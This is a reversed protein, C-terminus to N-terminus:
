LDLLYSLYVFAKSGIKRALVGNQIETLNIDYKIPDPLVNCIIEIAKQYGVLFMGSKGEAYDIKIIQPCSKGGGFETKASIERLASLGFRPNQPNFESILTTGTFFKSLFYISMIDMYSSKKSKFVLSTLTSEVIDFLDSREDILDFIIRLDDKKGLIIEVTYYPRVIFNSKIIVDGFMKLISDLDSQKIVYQNSAYGGVNLTSLKKLSGVVKYTELMSVIEASTWLSNKILRIQFPLPNLHILNIPYQINEMKQLRTKLAVFLRILKDYNQPYVAHSKSEKWSLVTIKDESKEVDMTKILEPDSELVYSIDIGHIEAVYMKIIIFNVALYEKLVTLSLIERNASNSVVYEKMKLPLDSRLISILHDKFEPHLEVMFDKIGDSAIWVIQNFRKEFRPLCIGNENSIQVNIEEKLGALNKDRVAKRASIAVLILEEVVDETPRRDLILGLEQHRKYIIESGENVFEYNDSKWKSMLNLIDVTRLINLHTFRVEDDTLTLRFIPDEDLPSITMISELLKETEMEKDKPASTVIESDVNNRGYENRDSSPTSRDENSSQNNPELIKNEVNVTPLKSTPPKSIIFNPENLILKSKRTRAM